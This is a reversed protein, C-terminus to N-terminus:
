PHAFHLERPLYDGMMLPCKPTGDADRQSRGNSKLDLRTCIRETRKRIFM